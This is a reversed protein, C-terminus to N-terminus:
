DGPHIVAVDKCECCPFLMLTHVQYRKCELKTYSWKEAGCSNWCL